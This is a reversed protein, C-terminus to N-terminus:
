YATVMRDLVLILPENRQNQEFHIDNHKDPHHIPLFFILTYSQDYLLVIQLTEVIMVHLQRKHLVHIKYQIM